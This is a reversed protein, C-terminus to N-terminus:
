TLVVVEVVQQERGFLDSCVREEQRPPQLFPLGSGGSLFWASVNDTM